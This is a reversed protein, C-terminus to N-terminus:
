NAQLRICNKNFTYRSYSSDRDPHKLLLFLLVINLVLVFLQVKISDLEEGSFREKAKEWLEIVRHDVFDNEKGDSTVKEKLRMFNKTLTEHTDQLKEHLKELEPDKIKDHRYVSNESISDQNKLIDVLHKYEKLKDKHHQFETELDSLEESSFKGSLSIDQICHHKEDFSIKPTQHM